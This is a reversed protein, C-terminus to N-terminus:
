GTAGHPAMGHILECKQLIGEADRYWIRMSRGQELLAPLVNSCGAGGEGGCIYKQDIVVNSSEVDNDNMWLAVKPEAHDASAWKVYSPKGFARQLVSNARASVADRGSSIEPGIPVGHADTPVATTEHKGELSDRVASINDDCNHVLVPTSGAEM